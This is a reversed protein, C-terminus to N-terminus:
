SVEVYPLCCDSHYLMVFVYAATAVETQNGKLLVQKDRYSLHYTGRMLGPVFVCEHM